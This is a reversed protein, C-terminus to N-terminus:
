SRDEVGSDFILFNDESTTRSYKDPIEFGHSSNPNPPWIANGARLRRVSRSDSENSPIVIKLPKSISQVIKSVVTRTTEQSDLAWRQLDRSAESHKLEVPNYSHPHRNIKVPDELNVVETKARAKCSAVCCKWYIGNDSAYCQGVM